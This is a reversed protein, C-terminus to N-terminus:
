QTPKRSATALTGWHRVSCLRKSPKRSAHSNHPPPYVLLVIPPSSFTFIIAVLLYVCCISLYIPIYTYLHLRARMHAAYLSSRKKKLTASSGVKLWGM